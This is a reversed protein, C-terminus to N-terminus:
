KSPWGNLSDYLAYTAKPHPGNVPDKPTPRFWVGFHTMLLSCNVPFANLVISNGRGLLMQGDNFNEIPEYEGYELSCNQQATTFAIGVLFLLLWQCMTLTVSAFTLLQWKSIGLQCLFLGIFIGTGNSGMIPLVPCSNHHVSTPIKIFKLSWVGWQKISNELDLVYEIGLWLRSRQNLMLSAIM